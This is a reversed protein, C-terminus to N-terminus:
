KKGFRRSSKLHIYIGNKRIEFKHVKKSHKVGRMKLIELYRNREGKESPFYMLIISDSEFEMTKSTLEKTESFDEELTLLSTCNWGGIMNFLALAAERKEIEKDFLLVFSTISDIVIRAVGQRVITSEITGGGEDLMTKVKVPTYELFTFLKKDEYNKLDWGFNKMNKYFSEKKEEFTVYLGKEGKKIGEVLFQTAFISKGSGAGGAIINSSNKEFGGGILKDFNSINTEVKESSVSVKKTQKKKHKIKKVMNYKDKM